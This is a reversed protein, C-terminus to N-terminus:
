FTALGFVASLLWAGILGHEAVDMDEESLALEDVCLRKCFLRCDWGSTGTTWDHREIGSFVDVIGSMGVLIRAFKALLNDFV